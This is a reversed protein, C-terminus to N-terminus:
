KIIGELKKWKWVGYINKIGLNMAEKVKTKTVLKNGVYFKWNKSTMTAINYGDIKIKNEM